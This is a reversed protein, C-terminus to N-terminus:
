WISKKAKVKESETGKTNNLGQKYNSENAASLTM